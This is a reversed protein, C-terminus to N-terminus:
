REKDGSNQYAHLFEHSLEMLSDHQHHTTKTTKAKETEKNYMVMPKSTIGATYAIPDLATPTMQHTDNNVALSLYTMLQKEENHTAGAITAIDQQKQVPEPELGLALRNVRALLQKTSLKTRLNLHNASRQHLKSWLQNLKADEEQQQQNEQENLDQTKAQNLRNTKTWVGLVSSLPQIRFPSWVHRRSDGWGPVGSRSLHKPSVTRELDSHFANIKKAFEEEQLLNKKVAHSVTEIRDLVTGLKQRISQRHPSNNRHHPITQNSPTPPRPLPTASAAAVLDDVNSLTPTLRAHHISQTQDTRVTASQARSVSIKGLKNLLRIEQKINKCLIRRQNQAETIKQSITQTQDVMNPNQSFFIDCRYFSSFPLILSLSDIIQLHILLRIFGYNYAISPSM